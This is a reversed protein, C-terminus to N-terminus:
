RFGEGIRNIQKITRAKEVHPTKSIITRLETLLRNFEARDSIDTAANYISKNKLDATIPELIGDINSLSKKSYKGNPYFNLYEGDTVRLLYLYCNVYGECEGPLSNQAGMWAIEEAVPLDKYQGHLEWILDSRALWEASPESYVVEKENAALFDKYPTQNGKGFPIAGLAAKLATLRKFSLDAKDDNNKVQSSVTKLFDFIQSAAAFDLKNDKFYKGPIKRYIEARKADDFDTVISKSIWGSKDDSLRVKSWAANEDSVTLIRGFSVTSITNAGAEPASRVRASTALVIVQSSEGTKKVPKAPSKLNKSTKVPKLASEKQVSKAASATKVSTKQNNNKEKGNEATKATTSKKKEPLTKTTTANKSKDSSKQSSKTAGSSKLLKATSKAAHKTAPKASSKATPASSTKAPPKQSKPTPKASTKTQAKASNVFGFCTFCVAVILVVINRQLNIM